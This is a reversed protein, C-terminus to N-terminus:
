ASGMIEEYFAEYRSVISDRDFMTMVRERGASGMQKRLSNDKILRLCYAAMREIDGVDALYGTNEHLVVEPIGGIDSAIVPIGCSMAELAALGFSETESPLLFISSSKLYPEFHRQQGLFSVRDIVGLDRALSEAKECEPGDGIMVLAAPVSEVVKTFIRVIDQTRKVPRFNSVHSIVPIGPELDLESHINFDSTRKKKSFRGTDVFNPIVEIRKSSPIRLKDYTATKLFSSPVTIGDSKIVSYLTPPQYCRSSGVITVDTGHLTVIIKPIKRVSALELAMQRAEVACTAFPVAYHVHILDIEENCIVEFLKTTIAHYELGSGNFLPYAETDASYFLVNSLGFQDIRKPVDTSIFFIQHGRSALALGLETALVGSGGFGPFCVVAIKLPRM